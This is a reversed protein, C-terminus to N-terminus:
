PTSTIYFEADTLAGSSDRLEVYVVRRNTGYPDICPAAGPNTGCQGVSAHHAVYPYVPTASISRRTLPETFRVFYEGQGNRATEVVGRGRIVSGDPRVQAWQAKFRANAQRKTFFVRQAKDKIHGPGGWLHGITGGVHAGVPTFLVGTLVAGVLLLGVARARDRIVRKM